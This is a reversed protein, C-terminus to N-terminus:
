IKREQHNFLRLVALLPGMWANHLDHSIVIENESLDDVQDFRENTILVFLHDEKVNCKEHEEKVTETKRKPVTKGGINKGQATESLKDQM